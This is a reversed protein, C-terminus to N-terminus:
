LSPEESLIFHGYLEVKTFPRLDPYCADVLLLKNRMTKPEPLFDRELVTEASISMAVPSFRKLSITM